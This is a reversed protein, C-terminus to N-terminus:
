RISEDNLLVSGAAQPDFGDPWITKSTYFASNLTTNLLKAESIDTDSLNAGSLDAESLNAFTLKANSFNVGSLNKGSLNTGSLDAGSLNARTLNVERLEAFSLNTQSLDAESLDAGNIDTSTLDFRILKAGSLNMGTLKLIPEPKTILGAEWLFRFVQTKRDPDLSLLVAQTRARAIVRGEDDSQVEDRLSHKLLLDTMRDFYLELSAQQQRDTAIKQELKRQEKGLELETQKQSRNFWLAGFGLVAPIILLELWDWLTRPQLSKTTVNYPKFGTWEPVSGVWAAVALLFIVLVALALLGIARQEDTSPKKEDDNSPKM